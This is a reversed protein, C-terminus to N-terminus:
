FSFEEFINLKNWQSKFNNKCIFYAWSFSFSKASSLFVLLLLHNIQIGNYPNSGENNNNM